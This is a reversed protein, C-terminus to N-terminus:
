RVAAAADAVLRSVTVEGTEISTVRKHADIFVITPFGGQLYAKAVDLKPDYAIPYAVKYQRAFGVVDDLSAPSQRDAAIDSASVAVIALRGHTARELANLAATEAQCHPCWTAFLELAIPTSIAASDVSQGTIT